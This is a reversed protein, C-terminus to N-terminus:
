SAGGNQNYMQLLKSELNRNPAATETAQRAESSISVQDDANVGRSTEAVPQATPRASQQLLRNIFGDTPHVTLAVDIEEKSVNFFRPDLGLM